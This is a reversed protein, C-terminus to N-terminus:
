FDNILYSIISVRQEESIFLEQLNIVGDGYPHGNRLMSATGHEDLKDWEHNFYLAMDYKSGLYELHTMLPMNDILVQVQYDGSFLESARRMRFKLRAYPTHYKLGIETDYNVQYLKILSKM